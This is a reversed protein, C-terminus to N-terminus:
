VAAFLSDLNSGRISSFLCFLICRFIFAIELEKQNGTM